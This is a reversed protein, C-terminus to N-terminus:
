GIWDGCVQELGQKNKYGGVSSCVFGRKKKKVKKISSFYELLGMIVFYVRIYVHVCVCLVCVCM